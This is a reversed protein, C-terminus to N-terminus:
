AVGGRMARVGAEWAAGCFGGFGGDLDVVCDGPDLGQPDSLALPNNMVYAYRNWSQPNTPDAAAMGSPDPSIWRGQVPSYERYLFDYLGSLTDQSQGTFNLDGGDGSGSPAYYEGFPAYSNDYAITQNTYTTSLRASGLWDSHLIHRTGGTSGLLEAISGGPLPVRVTVATQGSMTGLKGIPSYLIQSYTGSTSEIEVERGEYTIGKGAISVPKGDANWTYRDNNVCDKTLNGNADYTPV